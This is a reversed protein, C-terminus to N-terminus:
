LVDGVSADLTQLDVGAGATVEVTETMGGLELVANVLASKGIEVKVGSIVTQRFGKGSIVVNYTGPRVSPFTYGGESGTTTTITEKTGVDQLQVSANPVSAGTKDSVTGTVTSTSATQAKLPLGTSLAIFALGLMLVYNFKRM